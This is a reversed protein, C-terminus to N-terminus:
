LGNCLIWIECVEVLIWNDLCWSFLHTRKNWYLLWSFTKIKNQFLCLVCTLNSSSGILICVRWSTLNLKKLYILIFPSVAKSFYLISNVGKRFKMEKWRSLNLKLIKHEKPNLLKSSFGIQTSNLNLKNFMWMFQIFLRM